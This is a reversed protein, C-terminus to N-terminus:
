RVSSVASAGRARRVVTSKGKEKPKMVSQAAKSGNRATGGARKALTFPTEVFKLSAPEDVLGIDVFDTTSGWAFGEDDDVGTRATTFARSNDPGDDDDSGDDDDRLSSSWDQARKLRQVVPM